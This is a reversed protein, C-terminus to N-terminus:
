FYEWASKAFCKARVREQNQDLIHTFSSRTVDRFDIVDFSRDDQAVSKRRLNRPFHCRLAPSIGNFKAVRDDQAVSKRRLNRPFHCPLAPSIGNFKAM